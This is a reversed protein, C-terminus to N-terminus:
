RAASQAPKVFRLTMRDSEGIATLRAKDTEGGRLTPLLSWVGHKHDRTDKPNANLDSRAALEFGAAKALAIVDAEKIYGSNAYGWEESKVPYPKDDPWRHQEIALVGGPKLVDFYLKMAQPALNNGILGHLHRTALVMDASNDPGLKAGQSPAYHSLAVKDFVEPKEGLRSLLAGLGRRGPGNVDTNVGLILKGRERLTPALIDTWWGGGPSVEIVTMDSRLGFFALAAKPNRYVDRAREEESRVAGTLAADLASATGADLSAMYGSPNSTRPAPSAKTGKASPTAGMAGVSPLSFLTAAALAPFLGSARKM